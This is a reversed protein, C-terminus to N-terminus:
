GGQVQCYGDLVAIYPPDTVDARVTRRRTRHEEYALAGHAVMEGADVRPKVDVLLCFQELNDAASRRRELMM